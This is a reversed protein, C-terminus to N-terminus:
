KLNLTTKRKNILQARPLFATVSTTPARNSIAGSGLSSAAKPATESARESGFTLSTAGHNRRPPNSIAVAIQHEGVLMGDTQILAKSASQEDIFDVYAIGKPKGSKHTAVRM